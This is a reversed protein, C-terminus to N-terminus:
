RTAPSMVLFMTLASEMIDDLEFAIHAHEGRTGVVRGELGEEHCLDPWLLRVSHDIWVADGPIVAAGGLSLDTIACPRCTGDAVLITAELGMDYRRYLRRDSAAPSVDNAEAPECQKSRGETM